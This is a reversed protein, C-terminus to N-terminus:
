DRRKDTQCYFLKQEFIHEFIGRIKQEGDAFALAMEYRIYYCVKRCFSLLPQAYGARAHLASSRKRSLQPGPM